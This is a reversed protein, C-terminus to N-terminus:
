LFSDVICFQFRRRRATNRQQQAAEVVGRGEDVKDWEVVIERGYCSYSSSSPQEICIGFVSVCVHM